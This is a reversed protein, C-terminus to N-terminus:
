ALGTLDFTGLVHCDKTMAREGEYVHLAITEHNDVSTTFSASKKTPVVTNRNIVESMVVGLMEISLSMQTVDLLVMNKAM